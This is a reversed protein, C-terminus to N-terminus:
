PRTPHAATGAGPGRGHGRVVPPNPLGGISSLIRIPRTTTTPPTAATIAVRGGSNRTARAVVMAAGGATTNACILSKWLHSAHFGHPLISGPMFCDYSPSGAPTPATYRQDPFLSTPSPRMVM